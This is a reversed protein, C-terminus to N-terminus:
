ITQKTSARTCYAIFLIVTLSIAVMILIVICKACIFMYIIIIIKLFAGYSLFALVLTCTGMVSINETCGYHTSQRTISLENGAKLDGVSFSRQGFDSHFTDIVLDSRLESYRFNDTSKVSCMWRIM